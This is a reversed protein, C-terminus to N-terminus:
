FETIAFNVGDQEYELAATSLEEIFEINHTTNTEVLERADALNDANIYLVQTNERKPNQKKTEQYYIKFVM